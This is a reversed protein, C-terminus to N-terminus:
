LRRDCGSSHSCCEPENSPQRSGGGRKSKHIRGGVANRRRVSQFIIGKTIHFNTALHHLGYRSSITLGEDVAKLAADNNGYYHYIRSLNSLIEVKIFENNFLSADELLRQLATQTKETQGLYFKVWVHLNRFHLETIADLNTDYPELIESLLADAKKLDANQAHIFATISKARTVLSLFEEQRTPDPNNTNIIEQCLQYANNQQNHTSFYYAKEVYCHILELTLPLKKLLMIAQDFYNLQDSSGLQMASESLGLYLLGSGRLYDSKRINGANIIKEAHTKAYKLENFMLNSKTWQAYFNMIETDTFHHFNDQLVTDMRALLQNADDPAYVDVAYNAAKLTYQYAAEIDGAGFCHDVILASVSNLSAKYLSEYAQIIALHIKRKRALTMPEITQMPIQLHSFRYGSFNSNTSIPIIFNNFELEELADNVRTPSWKMAEALIDHKIPAELVACFDLLDISDEALQLKQTEYWNPLSITITQISQTVMEEDILQGQLNSLVSLMLHINGDAQKTILEILNSPITQDLFQSILLGTQAITLAPIMITQLHASLSAIKERKASSLFRHDTTLILFGIGNLLEQEVLDKLIRFSAFDCHQIDDVVFLIPGEVAIRTLLSSIGQGLEQLQDFPPLTLQTKYFPIDPTIDPFLVTLKRRFDLPLKRIEEKSILQLILKRLLAYPEKGLGPYAEVHSFRFSSFIRQYLEYAIRSKGVGSNGTLIIGQQKDKLKEVQHFLDDHGILPFSYSFSQLWQKESETAPLNTPNKITEILQKLISEELTYNHELAIPRLYELYSKALTFNQNDALTTLLEYHFTIDFEESIDQNIMDLYHFAEPLNNNNVLHRVLTTILNIQRLKLQTGFKEHWRLYDETPPLKPTNLFTSGSWLNIANEILEPLHDPLTNSHHTALGSELVQTMELFNRVDSQVLDKNFYVHTSTSVLMERQPLNARLKSLTERLATSAKKESQDPWFLLKLEERNVAESQCTLYYAMARVNRRTILIEEGFSFIQPTGLVRFYLPHDAYNSKM